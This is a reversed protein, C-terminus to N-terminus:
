TIDSLKLNKVRRLATSSVLAFFGATILASYLYTRLDPEHVFRMYHGEAVPLVTQGLCHGAALGLLIGILTTVVLDWSVYIVCERVTFGNIRMITLEKTKRQIYTVSLNMVIFYAMVGALGLMLLVAVDVISSFRNFRERDAAADKVRQFGPVNEAAELEELSMGDMRILFCNREAKADFVGEYGAPTFFMLNGFYNRFVGAIPLSHDMLDADFATLSDGARMGLYESMRIPILAGEDSLQLAKGAPDSLSYYGELSGPEAVIATASNFSEGERLIFDAKGVLVFPLRREELIEALKGEAGAEAPDFYLEAQYQIIQGFQRDGTREIAYKLMFGVVLLLCCGAISAITVLVRRLDSQMNRFILRTYLGRSSTRGSDRRPTGPQEGQLLRIAPIRILKACALWVSIGAVLPVGVAVAATELPLFCKPITRFTFFPEFYSHTHKQVVSYSLVVGLVVAVAGATLGFFMYKNLIERNFLGLAKSAGIQARQEEVMRGVSAYIVLAAIVLFFVSFSYSMSTLSGAQSEAFVYGTNGQNNAVLWRCPKFPYPRNEADRLQKVGEDYEAKAKEYEAKGQEYEALGKEYEAMGERYEQEGQELQKKGQEFRTLGDLYEEGTSYWLDRGESYTRMGDRAQQLASAAAAPLYDETRAGTLGDILGILGEAKYMLGELAAIQYEAEVLARSGDDLKERVTNLQEEAEKLQAWGSDLESRASSLKAAGEEIQRSADKLKEEGEKLKEAGEDLKQRGEALQREYDGRLKEDRLATREPVITEIADTVRKVAERYAASYRYEPAGEVRIRTKVFAGDLAERDFSEETVLLYPTEPLEYSIHDPSRIIGTVTYETERLLSIGSFAPPARRRVRDGIRLGLISQLQQELACEGAAAPLRGELLEPVSIETSLAQLSAGVPRGETLISIDATWVPEAREVGPVARLATLDDETMLLTSSIEIDWFNYKQYYASVARKIAEGSYVLGLYAILAVMGIVVVSIWPIIQKRINRIADTFQTKTMM